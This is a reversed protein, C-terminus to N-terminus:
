EGLHYNCIAAIPTEVITGVPIKKEEAVKRLINSFYFGISGSCHFIENHKRLPIIHKTLFQRFCNATLDVMTQEKLNQHIFKSFSALYRNPFPKAYVNELIGARDTKFREYFRSELEAPFEHHLLANIFTKGLHSGSGEDGLIYGLSPSQETIVKGDYYCANSGTGLIAAIGAKSACLGRATGLMDTQVEIRAESFIEELTKKLVLKKEEAGCGSGYFFVERVVREKMVPLLTDGIEKSIAKAGMFYPNLGQTSFQSIRKQEDVLRWDTKTSGSDAILIM